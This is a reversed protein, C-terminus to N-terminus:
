LMEMSNKVKEFYVTPPPTQLVRKQLGLIQIMNQISFM